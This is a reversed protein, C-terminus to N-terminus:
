TAPTAASSSMNAPMGEFGTETERQSSSRPSRATARTGIAFTSGSTRRRSSVSSARSRSPTSPRTSTEGSRCPPSGSSHHVSARAGRRGRIRPARSRRRRTPRRSRRPRSSRGCAPRRRRRPEGLVGRDGLPPRAHLDRLHDGGLEPAEGRRAHRHDREDREDGHGHEVAAQVEPGVLVRVRLEGLHGHGEDDLVLAGRGGVVAGRPVHAVLDGVLESRSWENSQCRVVAASACAPSAADSYSKTMVIGASKESASADTPVDVGRAPRAWARSSRRSCSGRRCSRCAPWRASGCSWRAAPRGRPRRGAARSSRSSGRCGRRPPRRRTAAPRRRWWPPRRRSAARRPRRAARRRCPAARPPCRAAPTPSRRARRPRRGPRPPCRAARPMRRDRPCRRRRRWRRGARPARVVDRRPQGVGADVLRGDVLHECPEVRHAVVELGAVGPHLLDHALDVLEGVAARLHGVARGREAAPARVAASPRPSPPRGAGGRQAVSDAREALPRPVSRSPAPVSCRRVRRRRRRWGRSRGPSARRGPPSWRRGSRARLRGRERLRAVVAGSQGREERREGPQIPM